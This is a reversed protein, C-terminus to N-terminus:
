ASFGSRGSPRAAAILEAHIRRIGPNGDLSDYATRIMASLVDDREDHDSPPRRRWAYYGATTVGLETCM